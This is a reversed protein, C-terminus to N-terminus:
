FKLTRDAGLRLGQRKYSSLYQRHSFYIDGRHLAHSLGVAVSVYVVVELLVRLESSVRMQIRCLNCMTLLFLLTPAGLILKATSSAFNFSVIQHQTWTHQWYQKSCSNLAITCHRSADKTLAVTPAIPAKHPDTPTWLSLPHSFVRCHM